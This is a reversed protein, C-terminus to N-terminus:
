IGVRMTLSAPFVMHSIQCWPGWTCILLLWIGATPSLSGDYFSPCLTLQKQATGALSAGQPLQAWPLAWLVQGIRLGSFVSPFFPGALKPCPSPLSICGLLSPTFDLGRHGLLRLKFTTQRKYSLEELYSWYEALM